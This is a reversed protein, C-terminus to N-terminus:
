LWAFIQHITNCCPCVKTSFTTLLCVLWVCSWVSEASWCCFINPMFRCPADHVLFCFCLLHWTATAYHLFGHCPTWELWQSFIQPKLHKVRQFHARSTARKQAATLKAQGMLFRQTSQSYDVAPLITVTCSRCLGVEVWYLLIFCFIYLFNHPFCDFWDISCKLLINRTDPLKHMYKHFEM